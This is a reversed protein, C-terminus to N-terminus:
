SGSYACRTHRMRAYPLRINDSNLEGRYIEEELAALYPVWEADADFADVAAALDRRNFSEFARRVVGVNERSM